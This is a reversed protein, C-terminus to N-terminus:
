ECINYWFGTFIEPLKAGSLVAFIANRQAIFAGIEMTDDFVKHNLATIKHIYTKLLLM